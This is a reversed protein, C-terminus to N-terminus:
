TMSQFDWCPNPWLVAWEQAVAVDVGFYKQYSKLITRVSPM